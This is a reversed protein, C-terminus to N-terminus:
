CRFIVKVQNRIATLICRHSARTTHLSCLNRVLRNRLLQATNGSPHCLRVKSLYRHCPNPPEVPPADSVFTQVRPSDRALFNLDPERLPNRVHERPVAKLTSSHVCCLLSHRDDATSNARPAHSDSHVCQTHSETLLMTRRARHTVAGCFSRANRRSNDGFSNDGLSNRFSRAAIVIDPEESRATSVQSRSRNAATTIKM